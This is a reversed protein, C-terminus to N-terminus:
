KRGGDMHLRLTRNELVEVRLRKLSMQAPGKMVMGDKEYRSGHCPCTFAGNDEEVTCGLHTCTLSYALIEGGRNYIVAPIDMKFTRSGVPYNAMDGLDFEVPADPDSKYGLFRILGGLGLLGSIGFLFNISFKIFDRRSPSSM